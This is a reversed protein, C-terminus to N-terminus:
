HQLEEQLHPTAAANKLSNYNKMQKTHTFVITKM